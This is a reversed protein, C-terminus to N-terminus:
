QLQIPNAYVWPVWEKLVKLEAEVRYKGPGTPTWELTRGEQQWVAAGDKMVTFRCPIPAIAHLRTQPSFAMTEGMVVSVAGDSASWRFSSSDAIMDFGVFVRGARLAELVPIEGLERALVHTNVFRAMRDYPDLQLLFLKRDPTLSGFL